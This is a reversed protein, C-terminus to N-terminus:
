CKAKILAFILIKSNISFKLILNFLNVIIIINNIKNYKLLNGNIPLMKTIVRDYQSPGNKITLSKKM